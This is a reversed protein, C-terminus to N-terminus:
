RCLYTAIKDGYLEVAPLVIRNCTNCLLGRVSGTDHDHDVHLRQKDDKPSIGCLACKGDQELLLAEYRENTMGTMGLAKWKRERIVDKNRYYYKLQTENRKVRNQKNYRRYNQVYQDHNKRKWEQQWCASCLGHGYVVRDPHCAANNRV